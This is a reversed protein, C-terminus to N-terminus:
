CIFKAKKIIKARFSDIGSVNPGWMIIKLPTNEVKVYVDSPIDFWHDTNSVTVALKGNNVLAKSGVGKILLERKSWEELNKVMSKILNITNRGSLLTRGSNTIKTKSLLYAVKSDKELILAYMSDSQTM